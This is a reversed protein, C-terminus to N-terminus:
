LESEVGLRPVERHQPPPGLLVSFVCVYWFVVRGEQKLLAAWGGWVGMCGGLAIAKRRPRKRSGRARGIVYVNNGRKRM